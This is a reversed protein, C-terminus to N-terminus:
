RGLSSLREPADAFTADERVIREFLERAGPVDGARERLDALAYWVRLHRFKPRKTDPAKELLAIAGALNGRDALAGAAVIRGEMVLDAGPSAERLENWLEDVKKWRKLARYSDALVPHQELTGTLREFAELHPIAAKWSGLRYLTLGYLERVAASEPQRDALPALIRRADKYHEEEFAKAADALKQRNGRGSPRSPPKAEAPAPRKRDDKRTGRTGRSVAKGAERRVPEPKDEVWREPQWRPREEGEGELGAADRWVKSAKEPAGGDRLNTAGRRAVGGWRKPGAREPGERRAPAGPKQRAPNQRPRPPRRPPRPAM